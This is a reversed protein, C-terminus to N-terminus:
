RTYDLPRPPGLFDRHVVVIHGPNGCEQSGLVGPNGSPETADTLDILDADVVPPLPAEVFPPRKPSGDMCPKM